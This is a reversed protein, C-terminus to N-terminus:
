RIFSILFHILRNVQANRHECLDKISADGAFYTEFDMMSASQSFVSREKWWEGSTELLSVAGERVDPALYRALM